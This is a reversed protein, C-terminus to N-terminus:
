DSMRRSMKPLGKRETRSSVAHRVSVANDSARPIYSDRSKEAIGDQGVGELVGPALVGVDETVAALWPLVDAPAPDDIQYQAFGSAVRRQAPYAVVV